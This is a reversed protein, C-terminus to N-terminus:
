ITSYSLMPNGECIYDCEHNLRWSPPELNEWPSYRNRRGKETRGETRTQVLSHAATCTGFVPYGTGVNCDASGHVSHIEFVSCTNFLGYLYHTASNSFSPRPRITPTGHGSWLGPNSDWLCCNKFNMRIGVWAIFPAPSLGNESEPDLPFPRQFNRPFPLSPSSSGNKLSGFSNAPKPSVSNLSM